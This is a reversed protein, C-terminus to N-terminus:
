GRLRRWHRANESRTVWELNCVRNDARNKNIHNVVLGRDTQPKDLFTEAIVRHALRWTQIGDKQM